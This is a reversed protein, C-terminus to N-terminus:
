WAAWRTGSSTRLAGGRDRRPLQEVANAALDGSGWTRRRGATARCTSRSRRTRTPWRRCRRAAVQELDGGFGHLFVVPEGAEGQRSSACRARRRGGGDGAGPRRGGRGGRPRVLGPLRGRLRRHRRRAGRRDAIVGLLGGVPVVDGEAAVRRRLVGTSRRSSRRRHAERDRDGRGRRRAAVEAGEDVLWEVCGHGRDDVPGVQAHRAEARDREGGQGRGQGRRAGSDQDTEPTPVYLTRSRRRQVAGPTHPPTVMSRRRRCRTSPRSPSGRPSTPRWAAARIRSTSSWWAAPTRSARSSRTWRRAALDHAPRRDRVRDGRDRAARGGGPRAAGDARARGDTVDDGERM